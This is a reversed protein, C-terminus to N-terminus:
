GWGFGVPEATVAAAPQAQDAAMALAPLGGGGLAALALLLLLRSVFASM